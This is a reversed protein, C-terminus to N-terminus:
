YNSSLDRNKLKVSSTDRHKSALSQIKTSLVHKVSSTEFFFPRNIWTGAPWSDWGTCGLPPLLFFAAGPPEFWGCCELDPVPTAVEWGAWGPPRGAWWSASIERSSLWYLSSTSALLEANWGFARCDSGEEIACIRLKRAERGWCHTLISTRTLIIDTNTDADNDIDSDTDTGADVQLVCEKFWSPLSFSPSSPLFHHLPDEESDINCERKKERVTQREREKERKERQGGKEKEIERERGRKRQRKKESGKRKCKLALITDIWLQHLAKAKKAHGAYSCECVCVCVCVCVLLIMVILKITFACVCVCM